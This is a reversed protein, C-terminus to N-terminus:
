LIVFSNPKYYFKYGPITQNKAWKAIKRVRSWRSALGKEIIDKIGTQDVDIDTDNIFKIIDGTLGCLSAFTDESDKYYNGCLQIFDLLKRLYQESFAERFWPESELTQILSSFTDLVNKTLENCVGESEKEGPTQVCAIGAEGLVALIPHLFPQIEGQVHNIVDSLTGFCSPKLESSVNRDKLLNLILTIVNNPDHQLNFLNESLSRYIDGILGLAGQTLSIDGPTSLCGVLM